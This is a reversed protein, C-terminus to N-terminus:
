TSTPSPARFSLRTPPSPIPLTPSGDGYRAFPKHDVDVQLFPAARLWCRMGDDRLFCFRGCNPRLRICAQPSSRSGHLDILASGFRATNSTLELTSTCWEGPLQTARLRLVIAFRSRLPRGSEETYVRPYLSASSALGHTTPTHLLTIPGTQVRLWSHIQPV